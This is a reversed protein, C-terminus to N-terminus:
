DPEIVQFEALIRAWRESRDILGAVLEAGGGRIQEQLANFAAFAARLAQHQVCFELETVGDERQLM